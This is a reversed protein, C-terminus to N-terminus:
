TGSSHAEEDPNRNDALEALQECLMYIHNVMNVVVVDDKTDLQCIVFGDIGYKEFRADLLNYQQKTKCIVFVFTDFDHKPRSQIKACLKRTITPVVVCSDEVLTLGDFSFAVPLKEFLEPMHNYILEYTAADFVFIM